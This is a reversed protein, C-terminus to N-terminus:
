ATGAGRAARRQAIEDVHDGKETTDLSEIETLVGRLQAVLAAKRDVPADEVWELLQRRLLQLDDIRAM